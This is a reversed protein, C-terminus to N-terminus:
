DALPDDIEEAVEEPSGLVVVDVGLPLDHLRGAVRSAALHIVAIDGGSGRRAGEERVPCLGSRTLFHGDLDLGRDLGVGGGQNRLDVHLGALRCHNGACTTVLGVRGRPAPIDADGHDHVVFSIIGSADAEAVASALGEPAEEDAVLLGVPLEVSIGARCVIRWPGKSYLRWPAKM